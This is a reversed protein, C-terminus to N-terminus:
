KSYMGVVRVISDSKNEVFFRYQGTEKVVFTVTGTSSTEIYTKYTGRIGVRVKKHPSVQVNIKVKEGKKRLFEPGSKMITPKITWDIKSTVSYLDIEGNDLEETIGSDVINESYYIKENGEEENAYVMSNTAMVLVCVLLITKIKM